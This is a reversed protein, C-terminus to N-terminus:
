SHIYMKLAFLNSYILILTYSHCTCTRFITLAFLEGCLAKNIIHPLPSLSLKLSFIDHCMFKVTFVSFDNYIFRTTFAFLNYHM